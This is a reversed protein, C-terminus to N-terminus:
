NGAISIFIGSGGQFGSLSTQVPQDGPSLNPIQVNLQYLGPSVLGAWQVQADVGGIAVSAPLSLPAPQSVLQASPLLPNTPGFGTGYIEIVEGPVAPRSSPGAPGVLTGDLHVAAVYSTAGSQYTFFAPSVKQKLVTGAYSAGQPTTVQVQVQGITDDDPAIANIQTANIYEVYAPKGNIAVSVGDLSTPLNNGSFDSSTWSRSSNTFGSGVISVFGGSAIAPQYSAANVVSDVRSAPVPVPTQRQLLIGDFPGLTVQTVPSGDNFLAASTIYVADALLAGSGANHVRLIPQSAATLAVTAVTHWADGAAAITQDLAWTAIVAGNAVVEYVANKTWGSAGPAAPLWVQITYQGDSPISLNWQAATGTTQQHATGGWAHYFPPNPHAPSGPYDTLGTDYTVTQWSPDATFGSSNDDVFYQWLPAQTGRFKQFGPEIPITQQGSTGNLIVAGNTFDRRYTPGSGPQLTIGDIWTEGTQDGFYFNVRGDSATANAQFAFTFPQWTTGLAAIASLGYSAYNGGDKLVNVHMNRPGSSVAWFSLTYSTGSVLSIGGDFLQINSYSSATVPAIATVSIHASYNGDAAVAMTSEFTAASGTSTDVSFTWDNTIPEEFSGNLVLNPSPPPATAPRAASLPAGLNFDYEDYWWNTEAGPALDGFDFTSFGDNMLALALGFRMNPYYTQAFQITSPPLQVLPSYGYGYAIQSPPSSQVMAIGPKQGGAFWTNYSSFLSDFSVNGERVQLADFTFSDGNFYSLVSSSPPSQDIHGANYAYPSLVKFDSILAYMGQGWATNLTNQDDIIGDRNADVQHPVGLYDYQVNALTAHFNDWFIGDYIGTSIFQDYAFQALFPPVEPNTMNFLFDGGPDVAIPQGNVDHLLYNAPVVPLGGITNSANVSPLVLVNPNATRLAPIQSVSVDPAGEGITPGLYLQVQNAQAPKTGMLYDGVWISGIRPFPGNPTAIARYHLTLTYDPNSDCQLYVNNVALPSSSIGAIIGSHSTTQQGVSIPQMSSFPAQTGLSYACSAPQLTSFSLAVSTSGPPLLNSPPTVNVIPVGSWSYTESGCNGVSYSLEGPAVGALSFLVENNTFPTARGADYAIEAPAKEDASIRLEDILFASPTGNSDSDVTFSAGDAPPMQFAADTEDTPVGDLYLRLRGNAKSYTLAVHHWVGAKLTAMPIGGVGTFSGGIVAGAYFNGAEASESMVLQDGNAAKYRILTQDYHSYVPDTGDKTPAIWMEITGDAFSLNGAAPYSLAGGTAIVLASGWKGPVFSTGVSKLPTTGSTSALSNDYHFLALQTLSGQALTQDALTFTYASGASSSGIAFSYDPTLQLQVNGCSRAFVLPGALLPSFCLASVLARWLPCHSGLATHGCREARERQM